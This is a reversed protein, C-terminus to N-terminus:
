TENEEVRKEREKGKTNEMKNAILNAKYTNKYLNNSNYMNAFISYKFKFNNPLEAFIDDEHEPLNSTETFNYLISNYLKLEHM